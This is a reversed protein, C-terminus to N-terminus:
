EAGEEVPAPGAQTDPRGDPERAAPSRAEDPERREEEILDRIQTVTPRFFVGLLWNAAVQARNQPSELKFLYTARWFLSALLGSFRVGMVENVAFQSGLEVLQGLPRYEFPELEGTGDIARLINRAVAHGEQVAAQATPPVVEGDGYPIAASDGIAWINTRGPVRLYEDVIVGDRRTLPLDFDQLKANPRNGATWVVNETSIKRGDDLLVCDATVEKARVRTIVEIRRAVLENRAARRLAPDLEKLVNTGAELLVIRVRNVDINPYDPALAEHVLAHIESAVEVGTAGGGIVVFTLKSEPVEGRALVTEEFREIVRDRIRLADGLGRMTLSYEEVGPIGFFNPQGGLALVLHDYPFQRGDATICNEEFDIDELEARRFSAGAQILPRRLAQAINGIDVDSGIVGAVMPWFTFFNERSIVMVGVDDRDRILHCLTKAATYGGFGGGLVLVRNPFERYPPKEWPKYRPRPELARRLAGAAVAAGGAALAAKLLRNV